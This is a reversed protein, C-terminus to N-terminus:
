PFMGRVSEVVLQVEYLLWVVLGVKLAVKASPSLASGDIRAFVTSIVPLSRALAVIDPHESGPEPLGVQLDDDHIRGQQHENRGDHSGHFVVQDEEYDQYQEADASESEERYFGEPSQNLQLCIHELPREFSSVPENKKFLRKFFGRKEKEEKVGEPVFVAEIAEPKREEKMVRILEKSTKQSVELGKASLQETSKERLLGVSETSRERDIESPREARPLPSRLTEFSRRSRPERERPDKTDRYERPDTRYERGYSRYDRTDTRVERDYGREPVTDREYGFDDEFYYGDGTIRLGGQSRKLRKDFSNEYGMAITPMLELSDDSGQRHHYRDNDTSKGPKRKFLRSKKPSEKVDEFVITNARHPEYEFRAEVPSSARCRDPSRRTRVDAPPRVSSPMRRAYAPQSSM